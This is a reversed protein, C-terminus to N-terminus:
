CRITKTLSAHQLLRTSPGCRVMGPLANAATTNGDPSVALSCLWHGTNVELVCSDPKRLDWLRISHDASSGKPHRSTLLSCSHSNLPSASLIRNQDHPLFCASTAAGKHGCLKIGCAVLNSLDASEGLSSDSRGVARLDWLRLTSDYSSSLILSNATPDGEISRCFRAHGMCCAVRQGTHSELKPISKHLLTNCSKGTNLDHALISGSGWSCSLLRDEESTTSISAIDLHSTVIKVYDDHSWKKTIKDVKFAM